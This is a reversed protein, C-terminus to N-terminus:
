FFEVVLHEPVKLLAKLDIPKMKMLIQIDKIAVMKQLFRLFDPATDM